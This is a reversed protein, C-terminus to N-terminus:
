LTHCLARETRSVLIPNSLTYAYQNWHQPQILYKTFLAEEQRGGTEQRDLNVSYPDAGTFRGQINAYYTAGFFDLGTEIDREKETFQQWVITAM